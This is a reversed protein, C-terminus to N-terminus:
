GQQINFKDSIIDDYKLSQLATYPIRKLIINNKICFANKLTDKFIIDQLIQEKTQNGYSTWTTTDPGTFHQRGDFEILYLLDQNDNFIAFDFRLSHNTEPNKLEDFIYEQKFKINNAILLEKIKQEGKSLICGCSVIGGSKLVNGQIEKPASGCDCQCLYWAEQKDRSRQKKLIRESIVTLHGFKTGIPIETNNLNYKRMRESAKARNQCGCSTTSGKKLFMARIPKIVGCDCECVWTTGSYGQNKTRYLPTLYGFRQGALNEAQGLPIEPYVEKYNEFM